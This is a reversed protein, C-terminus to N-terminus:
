QHQKRRRRGGACIKESMCAAAVARDRVSRAITAGSRMSAHCGTVKGEASSVETRSGDTVDRERRRRADRKKAAMRCVEHREGERDVDGIM